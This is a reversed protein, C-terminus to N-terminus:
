FRQNGNFIFLRNTDKTKEAWTHCFTRIFVIKSLGACFRNSRKKRESREDQIFERHFGYSHKHNTSSYACKIDYYISRSGTVIWNSTMMLSRPKEERRKKDHSKNWEIKIKVVEKRITYVVVFRPTTFCFGYSKHAIRKEVCSIWNCVADSRKSSIKAHCEIRNSVFRHISDIVREFSWFSWQFLQLLQSKCRTLHAVWLTDINSSSKTM